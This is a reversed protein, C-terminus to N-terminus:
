AGTSDGASKMQGTEPERFGSRIDTIIWDDPVNLAERATAITADIAVDLAQKQRLLETLREVTRTPLAHTSQM